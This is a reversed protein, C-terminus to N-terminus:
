QYSTLISMLIKTFTIFLFISLHLIWHCKSSMQERAPIDNATNLKGPNLRTFILISLVEWMGLSSQHVSICFATNSHFSIILIHTHACVFYHDWAKLRIVVLFCHNIPFTRRFSVRSMGPSSHTYM